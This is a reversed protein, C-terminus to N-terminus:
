SANGWGIKQFTTGDYFYMGDAYSAYVLGNAVRTITYETGALKRILWFRLRRM